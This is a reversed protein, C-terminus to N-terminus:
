FKEEEDRQVGFDDIVIGTIISYILTLVIFVYTFEVLSRLNLM